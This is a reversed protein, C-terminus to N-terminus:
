LGSIPGGIGKKYACDICEQWQNTGDSNEFFIHQSTSGLHMCGSCVARHNNINLYEYYYVHSEVISLNCDNCVKSHNGGNDTYSFCHEEEFAVGCNICTGGHSDGKNVHVNSSHGANTYLPSAYGLIDSRKLKVSRYNVRTAEGNDDISNGDIIWVCDNNDGENDEFREVIGVHTSNDESTGIFLIDGPQPTYYKGNTKQPHYLGLNVYYSKSMSHYYLVAVILMCINNYFLASIIAGITLLSFLYLSNLLM